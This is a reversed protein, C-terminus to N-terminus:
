ERGMIAELKHEVAQIERYPLPHDSGIHKKTMDLLKFIPDRLDGYVDDIIQKMLKDKFYTVMDMNSQTELATQSIFYRGKLCFKAEILLGFQGDPDKTESFEIKRLDIM